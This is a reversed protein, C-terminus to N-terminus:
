RLDRGMGQAAEVFAGVGEVPTSPLVGHGLNLIHGRAERGAKILREVRETIEPVPAMLALPDLNGQLSVRDGVRQAAEELDVRWDLSVVDPELDALEEVLHAAGRAFLIVPPRPTPLAELVQRLAPGAFRRFRERSLMGAWTDFVQLVDAGAEHQLKLTEVTIETMRELLRDLFGPDRYSLTGLVALDRSLKTESSYAALTWPAGAFGIVATDHGVEAKLARIADCTPQLAEEVSGQLRLLDGQKRIPNEIQPGPRFDLNLNLGTLPLLIDSFVIVADMGFRRHPQLSIETAIEPDRCMELFSLRSKIERYEPLYRGAQRMLWVPPRDTPEGQCARLMRDLRNPPQKPDM